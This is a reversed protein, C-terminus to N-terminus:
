NVVEWNGTNELCAAYAAPRLRIHFSWAIADRECITVLSGGDIHVSGEVTATRGEAANVLDLVAPATM